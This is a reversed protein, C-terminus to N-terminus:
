EEPHLTHTASRRMTQMGLLLLQLKSYPELEEGEPMDLSPFLRDIALAAACLPVSAEHYAVAFTQLPHELEIEGLPPIVRANLHPLALRELHPHAAAFAAITPITPTAIRALSEKGYALHDRIDANYTFEFATLEPWTQAVEQLEHDLIHTFHNHFHFTLARLNRDRLPSLLGTATAFLIYEAPIYGSEFALHVERVSPALTEYIRQVLEKMRESHVQPLHVDFHVTITELCPPSVAQMLTHVRDAMGSLTLEKLQHFGDELTQDGHEVDVLALSLSRLNPFDMLSRMISRTVRVSPNVSLSQLNSYEWFPIPSEPQDEVDWPVGLSLTELRSFIPTLESVLMQLTETSAGSYETTDIELHRLNPSEVLVALATWAFPDAIHFNLLRECRPVLAGEPCCHRALVSWVSPEMSFTDGKVRLERVRSAYEEFHLWEDKTISRRFTHDNRNKATPVFSPFISLLHVIDDVSRWLMDLAPNKFARCTRATRALTKQAIRRRLWARRDAEAEVLPDPTLCRIVVNMIDSNELAQIVARQGDSMNRM